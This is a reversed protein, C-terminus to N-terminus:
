PHLGAGEEEAPSPSPPMPPTAIWGTSGPTAFSGRLTLSRRRCCRPFTRCVPVWSSSRCARSPSRTAPRASRLSTTPASTRCRTSSCPSAGAPTPLWAASTPSCSSWTSRSTVPTARGTVPPSPSAPTGATACGRPGRRLRGRAGAPRLGPRCRPRPRRCRGGARARPGGPARGVALPRRLSQDPRAELKGTGWGARVAASRLANLLVTKGVGRLGTLVIRANPAAGRWGSSCSTSRTSSSTAGPWSPPGSDPAPRMPTESRTWSRLSYTERARVAYM